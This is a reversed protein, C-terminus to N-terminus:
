ISIKSKISKIISAIGYVINSGLFLASIYVLLYGIFPLHEQVFNFVPLESIFYPSIYFMNFTDGNLIGSNYIVMILIEALFVFGLFVLFANLLNNKELNIEETLLLYVSVVFSGCHLWMTHINVLITEVFCSDPMVITIFGGLITYFAM